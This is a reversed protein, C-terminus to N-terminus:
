AVADLERLTRTVGADLAITPQWGTAARVRTVDAWMGSAAPQVDFLASVGYYAAVLNAVEAVTAPRGTGINFVGSAGDYAALSLLGRAVDDVHIFDQAAAPQRVSPAQGSRLATRLSPILSQERQGPGYSFFIRAWRYQLGRERAVSDLMLRVATKTSAFVGPAVAEADEAQAGHANGYEWCSGAVVIRSVGARDFADMLRLNADLNQRCRDLSYDPLGDWALHLCCDPAFDAVAATWTAPDELTGVVDRVSPSGSAPDPTRVLRLVDCGESLRIVQRGLFGRGGTVFIKM